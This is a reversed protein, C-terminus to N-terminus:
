YWGKALFSNWAGCPTGYRKSIYGLGWKIQTAPNTQWDPGASAMKSGPLAQPIGYAGSKKNGATTRWGSERQWLNVLCQFEADSWGRAKVMDYAIAQASGPSVNALVDPPKSGTTQVQTVPETLVEEAIVKEVFVEGDHFTVVVTQDKLGNVGPISVSVKGLPQAPDKTNNIEFPIPAQRTITEHRVRIITVALEDALMSSPDPTIIDDEGWIIGLDNLATRVTGYGHVTQTTGDATLVIDHGTEITVAMGERPIQAQRNPSVKISAEALGLDDILSNVSASNTWYTGRQGNLTLDIPRSYEITIVMDTTVTETIDHSVLDGPQLTIDNKLFVVGVNGSVLRTTTTEGDIILTVPKGLALHLGFGILNIMLVGVLTLVIPRVFSPKLIAV